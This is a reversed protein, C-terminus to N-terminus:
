AQVAMEATLQITKQGAVVAEPTQIELTLPERMEV